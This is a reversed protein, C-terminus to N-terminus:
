NAGPREVTDIVVVDAPAKVADLRLGLEEQMATFLSPAASGDTQARSEDFTWQLKFDYRGSLGTQDVVPRDALFVLYLALESMSTNKFEFVMEGGWGAKNDSESSLGVPDTSEALKPGSKAVKLAYVELERKEMHTALGFRETLLKGLMTQLQKLNPQGDVNPVGDVDFHETRIWGPGGAIQSKQVGYAIALMSEVTRNWVMIHRGRVDIGDHKDDPSSPRVTVVDWDLDADKAMMKPQVAGGGGADQARAAGAMCFTFAVAALVGARKGLGSGM